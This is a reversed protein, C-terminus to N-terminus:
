HGAARHRGGGTGCGGDAASRYTFANTLTAASGDPNFVTIQASYASDTFSITFPPPTQALASGAVSILPLVVVRAIRLCCM